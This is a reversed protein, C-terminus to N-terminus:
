LGQQEIWDSKLTRTVTQVSWRTEDCQERGTVVMDSTETRRWVLGTDDIAFEVTVTGTADIGAAQADAAEPSLNEGSIEAVILATQVEQERVFHPDVPGSAVLLHHGDRTGAGTLVVPEAVGVLAIEEGEAVRGPRMGYAEV